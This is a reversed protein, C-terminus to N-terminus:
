GSTGFDYNFLRVDAAFREAVLRRTSPTYYSKYDRRTRAAQVFPLTLSPIGLEQCVRKFDEDLREFRGLFDLALEGAGDTVFTHQSRFHEDAQDDPITAIVEVFEDFPMDARLADFRALCYAVGRTPHFSTFDSVEGLVKDRYCSVLRDWPNRVFSFSFLGRYLGPGAQSRPELFEVEHPNGGAAALDIGLLSALAIKISSCAVKPVEVYVAGHAGLLVATRSWDKERSREANPAGDQSM